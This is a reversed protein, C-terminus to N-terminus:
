NSLMLQYYERESVSVLIEQALSTSLRWHKPTLFNAILEIHIDEASTLTRVPNEMCHQLLGNEHTWYICKTTYLKNTNVVAMFRLM